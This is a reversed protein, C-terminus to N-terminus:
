GVGGVQGFNGGVSWSDQSRHVVGGVGDDADARLVAFGDAGGSCVV